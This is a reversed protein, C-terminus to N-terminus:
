FFFMGVFALRFRSPKDDTRISTVAKIVTDRAADIWAGMSGTCDMVIAVDMRVGTAPTELEPRLGLGPAGSGPQLWDQAAAGGPDPQNDSTLPIPQDKPEPNM